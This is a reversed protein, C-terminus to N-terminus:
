GQKEWNWEFFPDNSNESIFVEDIDPYKWDYGTKRVAIIKRVIDKNHNGTGIIKDGANLKM